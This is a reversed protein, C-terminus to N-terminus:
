HNLPDLTFGERGVRHREIELRKRLMDQSSFESKGVTGQAIPNGDADKVRFRIADNFRSDVICILPKFASRIIDKAEDLAMM